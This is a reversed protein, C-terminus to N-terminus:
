ATYRVKSRKLSCIIRRAWLILWVVLLNIHIMRAINFPIAPFLMDPWIYQAGIVLGFIIQGAFLLMAAIFFPYAVRQSEYKYEM